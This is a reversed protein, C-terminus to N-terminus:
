PGGGVTRTGTKKNCTSTIDDEPGSAKSAPMGPAVRAALLQQQRSNPFINAKKDLYVHFSPLVVYTYSTNAFTEEEIFSIGFVISCDPAFHTRDPTGSIVYYINEVM